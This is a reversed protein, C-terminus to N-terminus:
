QCAAARVAIALGAGGYRSEIGNLFQKTAGESLGRKYVLGGRMRKYCHVFANATAKTIGHDEVLHETAERGTLRGSAADDAAEFAAKYQQPTYKAM